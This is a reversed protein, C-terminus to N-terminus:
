DDNETGKRLMDIERLIQLLQPAVSFDEFSLRTKRRWNPRESGTGPMNQPVTELWLDELNVLLYKADSRSLHGLLGRLVAMQADTSSHNNGIGFYALLSEILSARESREKEYEEDNILKMRRREEIDFGNWFGAFTATDHTNLCALAKQPPDKIPPVASPATEFICVYM